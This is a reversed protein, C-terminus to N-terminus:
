LPLSLLIQFIFFLPPINLYEFPSEQIKCSDDKIVSLYIRLGSGYALYSIDTSMAKM